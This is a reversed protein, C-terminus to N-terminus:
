GFVATATGGTSVNDLNEVICNRFDWTGKPQVRPTTNVDTNKDVSGSAHAYLFSKGAAKVWIAGLSDDYVSFYPVSSYNNNYLCFTGYDGVGGVSNKMELTHTRESNKIASGALTGGEIDVNGVFTFKNSTQTFLTYGNFDGNEVDEVRSSISNATQRVSSISSNLSSYSSNAASKTEYIGSVESYIENAYVDLQSQFTTNTVYDGNALLDTVYGEAYEKIETVKASIKEETQTTTSYNKFNGELTDTVTKVESRITDATQTIKTSLQEDADSLKKVESTILNATQTIRSTKTGDDNKEFVAEQIEEATVKIEALSQKNEEVKEAQLSIGEANQEIKSYMDKGQKVVRQSFNDTDLNYIIDEYKRKMIALEDRLLQVENKLQKINMTINDSM